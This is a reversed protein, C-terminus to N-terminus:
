ALINPSKLHLTLCASLVLHVHTAIAAITTIIISLLLLPPPPPHRPAGGRLGEELKNLAEPRPSRHGSPAPQLIGGPLPGRMRAPAPNIAVAESGDSEPGAGGGPGRQWAVTARRARM